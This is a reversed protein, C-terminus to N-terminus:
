PKEEKGKEETHRFLMQIREPHNRVWYIKNGRPNVVHRDVKIDKILPSGICFNQEVGVGDIVSRLMITPTSTHRRIGLLIGSFSTTKKDSVSNVYTVSIMSGARVPGDRKFLDWWPVRNRSEKRLFGILNTRELKLFHEPTNRLYVQCGRIVAPQTRIPM